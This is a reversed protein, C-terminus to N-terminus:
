SLLSTFSFETVMIEEIITCSATVLCSQKHLKQGQSNIVLTFICYSGGFGAGLPQQVVNMIHVNKNVATQSAM